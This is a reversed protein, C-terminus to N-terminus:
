ACADGQGCLLSLLAIQELCSKIKVTLVYSLILVAELYQWDSESQFKKRTTNSISGWAECVKPLCEVM